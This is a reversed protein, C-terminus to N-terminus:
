SKIDTCLVNQKQKAYRSLDSISLRSEYNEPGNEYILNKFVM